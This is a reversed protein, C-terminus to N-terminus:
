KSKSSNAWQPSAAQSNKYPQGAPHFDLFELHSNKNSFGFGFLAESARRLCIEKRLVLYYKM